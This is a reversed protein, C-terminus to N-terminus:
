LASPQSGLYEANMPLKRVREKIASGATSAPDSHRTAAITMTMTPPKSEAQTSAQSPREKLMVGCARDSTVVPGYAITRCEKYRHSSSVTIPTISKYKERGATSITATCHIKWNRRM